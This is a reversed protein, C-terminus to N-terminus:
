QYEITELVFNCGICSETAGHQFVDKAKITFNYKPVGKKNVVDNAKEAEDVEVDGDDGKDM